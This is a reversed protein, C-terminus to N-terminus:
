DGGGGCGGGGCSSGCGSGGDSGSSDGSFGIDALGSVAEGFSDASGCRVCLEFFLGILTCWLLWWWSTVESLSLGLGTLFGLFGGIM